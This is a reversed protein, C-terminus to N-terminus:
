LFRLTTLMKRFCELVLVRVKSRYSLYVRVQEDSRSMALVAPAAAVVEIILAEIVTTITDIMAIAMAKAIKNVLSVVAALGAEKRAITATMAVLTETDAVTAEAVNQTLIQCYSNHKRQTNANSVMSVAEDAECRNAMTAIMGEITTITVSAEAAARAV